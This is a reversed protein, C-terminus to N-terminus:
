IYIHERLKKQKMVSKKTLLSAAVRIVQRGLFADEPSHCGRFWLVELRVVGTCVCSGFFQSFMCLTDHLLIM